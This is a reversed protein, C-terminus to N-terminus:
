VDNVDFILRNFEEDIFRVMYCPEVGEGGKRTLEHVFFRAHYPTTM